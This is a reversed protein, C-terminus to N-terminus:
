ATKGARALEEGFAGDKSGSDLVRQNTGVLRSGYYHLSYLSRKVAYPVFYEAYESILMGFAVNQAYRYVARIIAKAYKLGNVRCIEDGYYTPIPM